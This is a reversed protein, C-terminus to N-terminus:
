GKVNSIAMIVRDLNKRLTRDSGMAEEFRECAKVVASHTINGFYLGIERNMFGTHKKALYLALNRYAGKRTTIEQQSVHFTRGIVQTIEELSLSTKLSRRSSTDDKRLLDTTLMSLAEKIFQKKGLIIGGYLDKFPNEDANIAEEVFAKYLIPANERSTM